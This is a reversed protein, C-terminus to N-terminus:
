SNNELENIIDEERNDNVDKANDVENIIENVSKNTMDNENNPSYGYEMFGSIGLILIVAVGLVLGTMSYGKDNTKRM